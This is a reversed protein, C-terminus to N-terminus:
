NLLAVLQSLQYQCKQIRQLNGFYENVRVCDVLGATTTGSEVPVEFATACGRRVNLRINCMEVPAYYKLAREIEKTIETKM